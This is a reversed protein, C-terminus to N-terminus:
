DSTDSSTPKKTTAEKKTTTEEKTTEEVKDWVSLIIETGEDFELGAVKSMLYVEDATEDGTNKTVEKKVTFGSHELKEKAAQYSMGIVDPLEVQAVGESIVLTIETGTLVSEGATLSQSIVTDKEHTKSPQMKYKIVFNRNFVENSKVSDYTHVTFDPVSVYTRDYNSTPETTIPDTSNSYVDQADDKNVPLFSAWSYLSNMFPIDYSKYLVTTYLLSFIVFFIAIAGVFTKIMLTLLENDHTSKGIQKSGKEKAPHIERINSRAPTGAPSKAAPKNAVSKVNATKQEPYLLHMLENISDLRNHSQVAMGKVIATIESKSLKDAVSSPLVMDDKVARKTADAPIKGTMTYYILATVSYIDSYEKLHPTDGYLELPTFGSVPRTRIESSVSYCQRISFRTLHIKGDAGVCVSKPSIGAHIIGASHLKGLASIVPKLASLAKKPTLAPKDSFYSELTICDKYDCVTYATGNYLLVDRVTPLCIIRNFEKLDNWLDLFSQLAARFMEEYGIRIAIQESSPPRSVIKEPYFEIISVTKESQTDLGIYTISDSSFHEVKGVLYKGSILSGKELFPERQPSLSNYSCDPCVTEGFPMEKMCGMCYNKGETM